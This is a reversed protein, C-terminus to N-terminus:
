AHILKKDVIYKIMTCVYEAIMFCDDDPSINNYYDKACEIIDKIYDNFM